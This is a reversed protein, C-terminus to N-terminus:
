VYIEVFRHTSSLLELSIDFYKRDYGHSKKRFIGNLIQNGCDWTNDMLVWRNNVFSAAFIHDTKNSSQVNNNWCNQKEGIKCTICISPINLSRALAVTLFTFDSCVCKKSCKIADIAKHTNIIYEGSNVSDKDYYLNQAIWDHICLLRNYDNHSFMCIEKALSYIEPRHCEIRKTSLKYSLLDNNSIPLNNIIDRNSEYYIPLIFSNENEEVEIMINEYMLSELQMKNCKDTTYLNIFYRGKELTSIKLQCNSRKITVSVYIRGQIGQVEVTFEDFYPYWPISTFQIRSGLIEMDIRESYHSTTIHKTKINHM